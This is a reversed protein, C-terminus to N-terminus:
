QKRRKECSRRVLKNVISAFIIWLRKCNRLLRSCFLMQLWFYCSVTDRCVTKHFIRHLHGNLFVSFCSIWFSKSRSHTRGNAIQSHVYLMEISVKIENAAGISVTPYVWIGVAKLLRTLTSKKYEIWVMSHVVCKVEVTCLNLSKIWFTEFYGFSLINFIWSINRFTQRVSVMTM